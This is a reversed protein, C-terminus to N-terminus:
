TTMSAPSRRFASDTRATEHRSGDPIIEFVAAYASRTPALLEDLRQDLARWHWGRDRAFSLRPDCGKGTGYASAIRAFQLQDLERGAGVCRAAAGLVRAVLRLCVTTAESSTGMSAAWEARSVLLSQHVQGLCAAKRHDGRLSGDHVELLYRQSEPYTVAVLAAAKARAGWRWGPTTEEAVVGISSAITELRARREAPPEATAEPEWPGPLRLLVLLIAEALTM